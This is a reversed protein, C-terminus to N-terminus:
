RKAGAATGSLMERRKELCLEYHQQMSTALQAWRYSGAVARLREVPIPTSDPRFFRAIAEAMPDEAEPLVVGVERDRVIDAAGVGPTVLAPLGAALAELVVNGFSEFYSPLILAHSSAFLRRKAAQDAAGVFDLRSSLGLREALERLEREHSGEDNGAIVLRVEPVRALAGLLRELGKEWSLRGLFLLTPTAPPHHEISSLDDYEEDDLGNGLVFSPSLDLRLGRLEQEETRSTLHIAASERLTRKEILQIWARKRFSSKLRILERVLMGRPSVVYPIGQRAAERAAALTPWLFVSHLHVVDFSGLTRRLFAAM